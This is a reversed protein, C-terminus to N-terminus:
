RTENMDQRVAGTPRMSPPLTARSFYNTPDASTLLIMEVVLPNIIFASDGM